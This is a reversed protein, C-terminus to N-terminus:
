IGMQIIGSTPKCFCDMHMLNVSSGLHMRPLWLKVSQWSFEAM